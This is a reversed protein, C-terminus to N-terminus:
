LITENFLITPDNLINDNYQIGNCELGYIIVYWQNESVPDYYITPENWEMGNWIIIYDHWQIDYICEDNNLQITMMKMMMLWLMDYDHDYAIVVANNERQIKDVIVYFLLIMENMNENMNENWLIM